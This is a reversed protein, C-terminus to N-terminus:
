GWGLHGVVIVGVNHLCHALMSPWLSRSRHRLFCFYLGLPLHTIISPLSLHLLAFAFSSIIMSEAVGLTRSLGTFIIGRFALEEMIPPLVAMLVVEWVFPHGKFGELEAEPPIGFASGLGHVYGLVLALVAPAALVILAYGLPGFGATKYLPWWMRRRAGAAALTVVFLAASAGMMAVFPSGKLHVTYVIFPLMVTLQAVFFKIVFPLESPEDLVVRRQGCASCFAANPKYAAGCTSCTESNM